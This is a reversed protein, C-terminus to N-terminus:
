VEPQKVFPRVAEILGKIADRQYLIGKKALRNDSLQCNQPRAAQGVPSDMATIQSKDYGFADALACALQFKTYPTTDSIHFVGGRESKDLQTIIAKLTKAIDDVHTPYRVAWNDMKPANSQILQQWTITLASEDIKEVAGYLVPIRVVNHQPYALVAQEAQYKSIGYDNLPAPQATEAYPPSTGDFVYDSSIFFLEVQHQHCLNALAAPLSVNLQQTLEPNELCVEPRREAAAHILYHPKHTILFDELARFDTLNLPVLPESARSFATGIVEFHDSFTNFLARGLLGSAGTIMIKKM